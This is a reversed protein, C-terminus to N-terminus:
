EGEGEEKAKAAKIIQSVRQRTIGFMRAIEAQRIGLKSIEYIASNRNVKEFREDDPVAAVISAAKKMLSIKAHTYDM